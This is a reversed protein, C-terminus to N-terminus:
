MAIGAGIESFKPAQEFLHVNYGLRGLGIATLLGGIGGGVIAITTEQKGPSTTDAMTNVRQTYEADQDARRTRILYVVQRGEGCHGGSVQGCVGASSFSSVALNGTEVDYVVPGYSSLPTSQHFSRIVGQTEDRKM